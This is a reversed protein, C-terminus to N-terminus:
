VEHLSNLCREYDSLLLCFSEFDSIKNSNLQTTTQKPPQNKQLSMIHINGAKGIDALAPRGFVLNALVIDKMLVFLLQALCFYLLM